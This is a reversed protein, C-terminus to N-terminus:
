PAPDSGSAAADLAYARLRAIADVLVSAIIALILAHAITPRSLRSVWGEHVFGLVGIQVALALLLGYHAARLGQVAITRDREDARPTPDRVIWYALLAGGVLTWSDRGLAHVVPTHMGLTPGIRYLTAFLHTAVVANAALSVWLMREPSGPAADALLGWRRRAAFAVGVMLLAGFIGPPVPWLAAGSALVVGLALAAVVM